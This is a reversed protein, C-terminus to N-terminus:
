RRVRAMASPLGSGIGLTDSSIPPLAAYRDYLCHRPVTWSIQHSKRGAPGPTGPVSVPIPHSSVVKTADLDLGAITLSLGGTLDSHSQCLLRAGWCLSASVDTSAYSRHLFPGPYVLPIEDGELSCPNTHRALMKGPSNIAVAVRQQAACEAPAQELVTFMQGPLAFM